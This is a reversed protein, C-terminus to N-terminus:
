LIVTQTLKDINVTEINNYKYINAPIFLITGSQEVVTNNMLWFCCKFVRSKVNVRQWSNIVIVDATLNNNILYQKYETSYHRDEARLIVASFLYVDNDSSRTITINNSYTNLKTMNIINYIQQFQGTGLTHSSSQKHIVEPLELESYIIFVLLITSVFICKFVELQIPLIRFIRLDRELKEWQYGGVAGLLISDCEHAVDLTAQPLPSATEDYASGGV